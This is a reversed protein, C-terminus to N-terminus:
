VFFTVALCVKMAGSFNFHTQFGATLLHWFILVWAQSIGV